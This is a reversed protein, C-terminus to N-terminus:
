ESLQKPFTGGMPNIKGNGEVSPKHNKHTSDKWDSPQQPQIQNEMEKPLPKRTKTDLLQNITLDNLNFPRNGM